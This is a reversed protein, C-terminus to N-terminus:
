RAADKEVDAPGPFVFGPPPPLMRRLVFERRLRKADVYIAAHLGHRVAEVARPTEADVMMCAGAPLGTDSTWATFLDPTLRSLPTQVTFYMNEPAVEDMLRSRLADAVWEQPLGCLLWRTVTRPLEHLIALVDERLHLVSRLASECGAPSIDSGCIHAARRCFDGSDIQGLALQEAATRLGIRMHVDVSPTPKGLLMRACLDTLSPALVGELWFGVAEIKPLGNM